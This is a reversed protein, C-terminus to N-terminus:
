RGRWARLASSVSLAPRGIICRRRARAGSIEFSEHHMDLIGRREDARAFSVKISKSSNMEGYGQYNYKHQRVSFLRADEPLKIGILDMDSSKTFLFIQRQNLLCNIVYISFVNIDGFVM